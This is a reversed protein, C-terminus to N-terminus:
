ENLSTITKQINEFLQDRSIGGSIYEQMFGSVEQQYGSPLGAWYWGLVDGSQTYETVASAIGGIAEENTEIDGFAPIFKFEEVQYQKGVESSVMWNLFDKALEKVKSDKYVVWNNPVGVYISDNKGEGVPMPLIGVNMDPTIESLQNQIWNGQQIMAAKGIAFDTVQTNYDVLLPNDQGYKVTLDLLDVWNNAVANDKLSVTGEKLGEVFAKPNEQNALMSNFNHNALVWWEQYGTSFPIVDIAELKECVDEFEELTTPLTDIGAEEFIDKNYIYGYGELNFPMGYVKGDKTMAEATGPVLRDIWPQDSLDELQDIWVELENDGYNNFIDPYDGSAFKSKLVTLYDAGGGVTEVEVTVGPHEKEYEDALALFQEAMEVKFQYIKLVQNEEAEKDSAEAQTSNTTTETGEGSTNGNNEQSQGGNGCGSILGLVMIVTLIISLSKKM